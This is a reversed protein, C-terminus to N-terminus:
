KYYLIKFHLVFILFVNLAKLFVIYKPSIKLKYKLEYYIYKIKSVEKKTLYNM